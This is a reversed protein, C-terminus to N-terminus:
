AVSWRSRDREDGPGGCRRARFAFDHGAGQGWGGGDEDARCEPAAGDGRFVAIDTGTGVVLPNNQKLGPQRLTSIPPSATRTLPIPKTSSSPLQPSEFIDM